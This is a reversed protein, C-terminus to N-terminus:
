ENEAGMAKEVRRASEYLRRAIYRAEEPRMAAWETQNGFRLHVRDGGDTIRIQVIGRPEGQLMRLANDMGHVQRIM